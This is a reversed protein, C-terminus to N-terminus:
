KKRSAKKRGEKREKKKTPVAFSICKSAWHANSHLINWLEQPIVRMWNRNIRVVLLSEISADNEVNRHIKIKMNRRHHIQYHMALKPDFCTTGQRQFSLFWSSHLQNMGAKLRIRTRTELNGTQNLSLESDSKFRNYNQNFGLDTQNPVIRSELSHFKLM